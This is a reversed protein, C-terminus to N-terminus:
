RRKTQCAALFPCVLGEGFGSFRGSDADIPRLRLLDSNDINNQAAASIARLRHLNNIEMIIESLEADRFV